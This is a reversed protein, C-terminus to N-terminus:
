KPNVAFYTHAPYPEMIKVTRQKWWASIVRKDVVQV